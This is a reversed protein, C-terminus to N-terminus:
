GFYEALDAKAKAREEAATGFAHPAPIEHPGHLCHTEAIPVFLEGWSKEDLEASEDDAAIVPESVDVDATELVDQELDRRQMEDLIVAHWSPDREGAAVYNERAWRRLRLEATLDIVESTNEVM